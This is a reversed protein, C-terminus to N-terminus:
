LWIRCKGEEVENMLEKLDGITDVEQIGNYPHSDSLRERYNQIEKKAFKLLTKVNEDM